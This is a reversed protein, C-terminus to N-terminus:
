PARTPSNTVAWEVLDDVVEASFEMAHGPPEDILEVFVHTMNAYERVEAVVAGAAIWSELLERHSPGVNFDREGFYAVIPEDTQALAAPVADQFAIWDLWYDVSAGLYHTDPYTGAVMSELANRIAAAETRLQEILPDAPNNAELWDAYDELQGSISDIVSLTPGALMVGAHVVQEEHVLTPVYSAGKSHGVVIIDDAIDPEAALVQAAVRADELFDGVRLAELDDPYETFSRPCEPKAEVFCSRKDHSLVAFGRAALQEALSAYIPIPEAFAIGLSGSVLGERGNPGSGHMLVVGPPQYGEQEVVPLWLTGDLRWGAREFSVERTEVATVMVRECHDEVVVELRQCQAPPEVDEDGEDSEDSVPSSCAAVLTLLSINIFHIRRIM